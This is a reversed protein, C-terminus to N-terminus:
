DLLVRSFPFTGKTTPKKAWAVIPFLFYIVLKGHTKPNNQKKKYFFYL